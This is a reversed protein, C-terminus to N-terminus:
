YVINLAEARTQDHAITLPQAPKGGCKLVVCVRARACVCLCSVLRGVAATGGANRKGSMRRARTDGDVSM